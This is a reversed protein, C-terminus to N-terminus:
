FKFRHVHVTFPLSELDSSGKKMKQQLLILLFHSGWPPQNFISIQLYQQTMNSQYSTQQIPARCAVSACRLHCEIIEGHWFDSMGIQFGCCNLKFLLCFPMCYFWARFPQPIRAHAQDKRPFISVQFNYHCKKQTLDGQAQSTVLSQIGHLLNLRIERSKITLQLTASHPKNM